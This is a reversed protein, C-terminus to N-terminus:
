TREHARSMPAAPTDPENTRVARRTRKSAALEPENPNCPPKPENMRAADCPRSADDPENPRPSARTRALAMRCPETAGPEIPGVLARCRGQVSM